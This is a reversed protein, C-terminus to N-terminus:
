SDKFTVDYHFQMDGMHSDVPYTPGGSTTALIYYQYKVADNDPVTRDPDYSYRPIHWTGMKFQHDGFINASTNSSSHIWFQKVIQADTSREALSNVTQVPNQLLHLKDTEAFVAIPGDSFIGYGNQSDSGFSLTHGIRRTTRVLMVRLSCGTGLRTDEAPNSCLASWTCSWHINIDHIKDGVRQYSLTGKDIQGFPQLLYVRRNFLRKDALGKHYYKTEARSSILRKVKAVTALKRDVRKGRPKRYRYNKKVITKVVTM